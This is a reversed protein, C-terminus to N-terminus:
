PEDGGKNKMQPSITTREEKERHIERALGHGRPGNKHVGALKTAAPKKEPRSTKKERGQM